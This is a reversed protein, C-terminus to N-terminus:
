NGAPSAEPVDCVPQVASQIKWKRIRDLQDAILRLDPDADVRDRLEQLFVPSIYFNDQPESKLRGALVSM